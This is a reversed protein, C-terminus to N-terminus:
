LNCIHLLTNSKSLIATVFKLFGGQYWSSTKPCSRVGAQCHLQGSGAPMLNKLFGTTTLKVWSVWLTYQPYGSPIM